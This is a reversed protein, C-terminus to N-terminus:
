KEGDYESRLLSLGLVNVRAGEILYHERLFSEKRFGFTEYLRLARLNGEGVHLYIKHLGLAGFGHALMLRLVTKGLGRGQSPGHGLLIWFEARGHTRDLNYFGTNGVHRGNEFVAFVQRSDDAQLREFWRRQDEPTVEGVRLILRQLEPDNAWARTQELESEAIPRLSVAGAHLM